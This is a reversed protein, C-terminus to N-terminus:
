FDVGGCLFIHYQAAFIKGMYLPIAIPELGVHFNKHAQYKVGFAPELMFFARELQLIYSLGASVKPYLYLGDVPLEIDYQFTLPINITTYNDAFQFQPNIGLYANYDRDLAVAIEPNLTFQTRTDDLNIAPGIKLTASFRGAKDAAEAAKELAFTALALLTSGALLLTRRM